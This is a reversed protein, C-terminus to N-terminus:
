ANINTFHVHLIPRHDNEDQSSTLWISGSKVFINCLLYNKCKREWRSEYKVKQDIKDNVLELLLNVKLYFM